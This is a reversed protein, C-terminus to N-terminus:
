LALMVPPSHEARAVVRQQTEVHLLGSVAQPQGGVRTEVLQAQEGVASGAIAQAARQRGSGIAPITAQLRQEAGQLEGVTVHDCLLGTGQATIRV